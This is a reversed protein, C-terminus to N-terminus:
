GDDESYDVLGCERWYPDFYADAGGVGDDVEGEATQAVDGTEEVGPVDDEFVGLRVVIVGVVLGDRAGVPAPIDFVGMDGVVVHRMLGHRGRRLSAIPRQIRM